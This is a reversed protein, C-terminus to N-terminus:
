EGVSREGWGTAEVGAGERADGTVGDVGFLAEPGEAAEAGYEGLGLVSVGGEGGGELCRRPGRM